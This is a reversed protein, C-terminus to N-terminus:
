AVGDRAANCGQRHSGCRGRASTAKEWGKPSHRAAGWGRVWGANASLSSKRSRGLGKCWALRLNAVCILTETGGLTAMHHMLGQGTGKARM